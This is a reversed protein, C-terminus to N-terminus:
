TTIHTTFIFNHGGNIKHLSYDLGLTCSSVEMDGAGGQPMTITCLLLQVKRDM